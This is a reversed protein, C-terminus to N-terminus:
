HAVGFETGFLEAAAVTVIEDGRSLGRSLIARGDATSAIEIRRRVFSDPTTRQYVWDGGYIDTVIASTPVALGTEARGALPLAVAVRQGIRYARDRNDLAFYLDVTGAVANASPPAEVPRAARPPGDAGLPRIDVARGREIAGMDTGFVPVRVWVRAMKAMTGVAPGLLRRQAIAADVAAQATALAAAAEDRARISGAEERVLADARALAVRALGSQARSRAIEGDAAIQQTGIQAVNSLSSTPVGGAGAPVVIEGSTERRAGASDAGIRTTEIGLRRQAQRTLTLRLLETEHGVVESHAPPAAPKAAEPGCSGLLPLACGLFLISRM